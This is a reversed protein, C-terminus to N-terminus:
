PIIEEFALRTSDAKLFLWGQRRRGHAVADVRVSFASSRVTVLGALRDFHNQAIRSRGDTDLRVVVGDILMLDRPTKFPRYSGTEGDGSGRYSAVRDVLAEDFAEDLAYLVAKPATNLNVRGDGMCTMYKALGEPGFLDEVDIGVERLGDLSVLPSSHAVRELIKPKISAYAGERRPDRRSLYDFLRHIQSIVATREAGSLWARAVNLKGSEDSIRVEASESDALKFAILRNWSQGWGHFESPTRELLVGRAIEGASDFLRRFAADRLGRTRALSEITARSALEIAVITLVAVAGLVLLLAAGEDRRM